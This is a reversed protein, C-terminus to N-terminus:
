GDRGERKEGREEYRWGGERKETERKEVELVGGGMVRRRWRKGIEVM